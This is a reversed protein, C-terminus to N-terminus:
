ALALVTLAVVEVALARLAQWFADRKRRYAVLNDRHQEAMYEMRYLQYAAPQLTLWDTRLLEKPHLLRWEIPRLARFAGVAVVIWAVLAIALAGWAVPTLLAGRIAPVVGMVLAGMGFVAAAKTDLHESWRELLDLAGAIDLAAVRLTDADLTLPNLETQM